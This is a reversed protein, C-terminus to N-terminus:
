FMLFRKFAIIDEKEVRGQSNDNWHPFRFKFCLLLHQSCEKCSIGRIFNWGGIKQSDSEGSLTVARDGPRRGEGIYDVEGLKSSHLWQQLYAHGQQLPLTFHQLRDRCVRCQLSLDGPYLSSAMVTLERDFGFQESLSIVYKTNCRKFHIVFINSVLYIKFRTM